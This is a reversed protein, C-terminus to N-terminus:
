SAPQIKAWTKASHVHVTFLGHLQVHCGQFLCHKLSLARHKAHM